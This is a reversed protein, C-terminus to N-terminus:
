GGVIHLLPAAVAVSKKLSQVCSVVSKFAISAAVSVPM